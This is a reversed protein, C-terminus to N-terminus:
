QIGKAVLHPRYRRDTGLIHNTVWNALFSLVPITVARPGDTDCDHRIGQIQQILEAHEKQHADCDPYGTRVLLEEEYTFHMLTYTILAQLIGGLAIKDTGTMMGDHLQNLLSVMKGHQEDLSPVGVSYEDGWKVRPM